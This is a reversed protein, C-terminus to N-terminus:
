TLAPVPKWLLLASPVVSLYSAAPSGAIADRRQHAGPAGFDAHAGDGNRMQLARHRQPRQM